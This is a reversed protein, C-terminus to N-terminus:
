LGAVHAIEEEHCLDETGALSPQDEVEVYRVKIWEGDQTEATIEAAAGDRTEIRDGPGLKWLDIM